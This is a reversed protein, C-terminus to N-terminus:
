IAMWIIKWGDKNMMTPVAVRGQSNIRQKLDMFISVVSIPECHILVKLSNQIHWSGM